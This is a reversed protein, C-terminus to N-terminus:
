VVEKRPLRDAAALDSTKGPVPQREAGPSPAPPPPDGDGDSDEGSSTSGSSTRRSGAHRTTGGRAERSRGLRRDQSRTRLVGQAWRVCRQHDKQFRPDRPPREALFKRATAAHALRWLRGAEASGPEARDLRLDLRAEWGRRTDDFAAEVAHFREWFDDTWQPVPAMERTGPDIYPAYLEDDLSRMTRV